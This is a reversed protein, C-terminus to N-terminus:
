GMMFVCVCEWLCAATPIKLTASGKSLVLLKKIPTDTNERNIVILQISWQNCYITAMSEFDIQLPDRTAVFCRPVLAAVYQPFWREWCCLLLALRQWQLHWQVKYDAGESKIPLKILTITVTTQNQLTQDNKLRKRWSRTGAPSTTGRTRWTVVIDWYIDIDGWSQEFPITAM